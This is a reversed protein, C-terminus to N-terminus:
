NADLVISVDIGHGRTHGGVWGQVGDQTRIQIMLSQADKMVSDIRFGMPGVLPRWHAELQDISMETRGHIQFSGSSELTTEDTMGPPVLSRAIAELEAGGLAPPAPTAPAPQPTDAGGPTPQGDVPMAPLQAGGCAGLLMGLAVALAILRKM